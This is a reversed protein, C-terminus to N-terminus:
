GTMSLLVSLLTPLSPLLNDALMWGCACYVCVACVQKPRKNKLEIKDHANSLLPLYYGITLGQIIKNNPGKGTVKKKKTQNIKLFMTEKTYTHAYM